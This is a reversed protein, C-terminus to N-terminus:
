DFPSHHSSSSERRMVEDLDSDTGAYRSGTPVRFVQDSPTALDIGDFDLQESPENFRQKVRDLLGSKGAGPAGPLTYHVLLALTPLAAPARYEIYDLLKPAVKIQESYMTECRVQDPLLFVVGRCNKLPGVATNTKVAQHLVGGEAPFPSFVTCYPRWDLNSLIPQKEAVRRLYDASPIRCHTNLTDHQLYYTISDTRLDILIGYRYTSDAFGNPRIERRLQPGRFYMTVYDTSRLGHLSHRELLRITGVFGDLRSSQAPVSVEASRPEEAAPSSCALLGALCVVLLRPLFM